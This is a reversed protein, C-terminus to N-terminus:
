DKLVERLPRASDLQQLCSLGSHSMLGAVAVPLDGRVVMCIPCPLSIVDELAKLSLFPGRDGNRRWLVKTGREKHQTKSYPKRVYGLCAGTEFDGQRLRGLALVVM